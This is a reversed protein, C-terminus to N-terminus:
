HGAHHADVIADLKADVTDVSTPDLDTADFAVGHGKLLFDLKPQLQEITEDRMTSPDGGHASCLANAKAHLSTHSELDLNSADFDTVNHDELLFDLKQHLTTMSVDTM